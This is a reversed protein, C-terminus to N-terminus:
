GHNIMGFGLILGEADGPPLGNDTSDDELGDQGLGQAVSDVVSLQLDNGM